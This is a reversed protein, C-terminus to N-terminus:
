KKALLEVSVEFEDKIAKDAIDSFFKISRYKIDYETRDINITAKASYTGNENKTITAPFSIPKKINKITLDGKVIYSNPKKDATVSNIKLTATKHKEVSFFDDSKLHNLLRENDKKETIDTVALTNMNIVFEGGSLLGNDFLLFGKELGLTGNHAGAIKKGEWTITSSDNQVKYNEPKAFANISLFITLIGLTYKM